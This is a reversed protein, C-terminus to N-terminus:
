IANSTKEVDVRIGSICNVEAAKFDELEDDGIDGLTKHRLGNLEVSNDHGVVGIDSGITSLMASSNITAGKARYPRPKHCASGGTGSGTASRQQSFLIGFHLGKSGNSNFAHGDSHTVTESGRERLDLIESFSFLNTFDILHSFRFPM